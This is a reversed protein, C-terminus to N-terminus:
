TNSNIILNQTKKCGHLGYTVVDIDFFRCFGSCNPVIMPKYMTRTM